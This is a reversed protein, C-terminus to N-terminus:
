EAAFTGSEGLVYRRSYGRTRNEIAISISGDKGYRYREVIEEGPEALRQEPPVRGLDGNEVLSPDYPFLVDCWPTLDGHPQGDAGLESCELFRLRGVAHVPRYSREIEVVSGDGEPLSGKRIIPDFIKDRGAGGERWVGFHRTVAERVLVGADPDASMALGVATAAHAQPAALVKRKYRERLLRGVLPFATAGGVLYVGGLERPNSPDIGRERVRELVRELLELTREVLPECADNVDAMDLPVPPVGPLASGFDVLLKRSTSTLTEKAERCAELLRARLVADGRGLERGLAKSALELIREDFDDGGLRGIGETALLDFRRDVLSVASTDFTGGGLDYVVVYRKPSRKGTNGLHNHAYEIAAATPENMMGLVRFGARHFAEVTLYRQSTGANAPVAIMAELPEHADLELNSREFLLARLRALYETALELATEALGFENLRDDPSRSGVERKISRVVADARGALGAAASWGLELRGAERVALGPVFDEFGHPTEFVAVPYRGRVAAAVVTRTTGFDIGLRMDRIGAANQAEKPRAAL